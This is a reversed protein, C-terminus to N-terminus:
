LLIQLDGASRYMFTESGRKDSSILNTKIESITHEATVDFMNSIVFGKSIFSNPPIMEKWLELDEPNELLKDVDAQTLDKALDTPFIDIFDANYLIRYHHMIGNADPIDYFYPRSFDLNFGYHFKLIVTSAMIYDIGEDQNRIFPKFDKGANDLIKQFRKSKNFVIDFYPLSAAKIENESLVEAFSDQLIVRIVDKHKELLAIDSFGDRLEPFPAQTELVYKARSSLLPDDSKAMTDYQQLLKDFSILMELPMDKNITGM